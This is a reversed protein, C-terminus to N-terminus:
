KSYNLISNDKVDIVFDSFWCDNKKVRFNVMTSDEVEFYARLVRLNDSDEFFNHFVQCKECKVVIETPLEEEGRSVSITATYQGPRLPMFFSLTRDKSWYLCTDENCLKRVTLKSSLQRGTLRAPFRTPPVRRYIQILPFNLVRVSSLPRLFDKEAFYIFRPSTVDTVVVIDTNAQYPYFSLAVNINARESVIKFQQLFGSLSVIPKPQTKSAFVLAPEIGCSPYETYHETYGFFKPTSFELACEKVHQLAGFNAALVLLPLFRYVGGFRGLLKATEAFGLAVLPLIVPYCYRLAQKEPIFFLILGMVPALFEVKPKRLAAYVGIVLAVVDFPTLKTIISMWLSPTTSEHAVDKLQLIRFITATLNKLVIPEVVYIGIILSFICLALFSKIRQERGAFFFAALMSLSTFALFLVYILVITENTDKYRFSPHWLSPLLHFTFLSATGCLFADYFRKVILISALCASVLIVASIKTLMTLGLLFGTLILYFPRRSRSFLLAYSFLFGILCDLHMISGLGVFYPTLGAAIASLLSISESFSQRLLLFIGLYTLTQFVSNILRGCNIRDQVKSIKSMKCIEYGYGFVVNAPWAPHTLQNFARPLDGQGLYEVYLRSRSEWHPEDIQIDARFLWPRSAATVVALCILVIIMTIRSETVAPVRM